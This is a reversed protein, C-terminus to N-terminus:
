LGAANGVHRTVIYVEATDGGTLTALLTTQSTTVTPGTGNLTPLAAGSVVGPPVDVTNTGGDHNVRAIFFHNGSKDDILESKLPILLAM